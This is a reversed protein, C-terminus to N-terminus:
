LSKELVLRSVRVFGPQTDQGLEVNEILVGHRNVMEDLWSILANFEVSDITLRLSNDSPQMKSININFRSRTSNVIQSLSGGSQAQKPQVAKLKVVSEKVWAVLETQQQRDKLAKEIGQNLPKFIGMFLVFIVFVSGAVLLLRQEQEKLGHWYKLAKEKM